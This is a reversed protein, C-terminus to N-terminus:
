LLVLMITCSINVTRHGAKYPCVTINRIGGCSYGVLEDQTLEPEMYENM